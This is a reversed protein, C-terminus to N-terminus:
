PQTIPSKRTQSVAPFLPLPEMATSMHAEIFQRQAQDTAWVFRRARTVVGKNLNRVVDRGNYQGIIRLTSEDNAAVYLARPSIPISIMGKPQGLAFLEVPRDSTLLPMGCRSVDLVCFPMRNIHQCIFQNDIAKIILNLQMKYPTLPDRIGLYEDFTPPDGPKKIEEYRRQHEEGSRKWEEAAATRLEPMADPHRLHLGLVFRSWATVMEGPWPKSTPRLLADLARHAVRDAYDFFIRELHQAMEAPLEPFAYLDTQFGTAGPGVRKVHLKGHPRSFECLKGDMGAWQKLYFAPIFHHDRPLRLSPKSRAIM